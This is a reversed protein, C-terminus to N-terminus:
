GDYITLERGVCLRRSDATVGAAQLIEPNTGLARQTELRLTLPDCMGGGRLLQKLAERDERSLPKGYNDRFILSGTIGRLHELVREPLDTGRSKAERCAM